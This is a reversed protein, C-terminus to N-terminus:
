PPQEFAREPEIKIKTAEMSSYLKKALAQLDTEEAIDVGFWELIWSQVQQAKSLESSSARDSPVAKELAQRLKGIILAADGGDKFARLLEERIAEFELGEATAHGLLRGEAKQQQFNPGLQWRAAAAAGEARRLAGLERRAADAAREQRRALQLAERDKDNQRARSLMARLADTTKWEWLDPDAVFNAAREGAPTWAAQRRQRNLRAASKALEGPSKDEDFLDVLGTLESLADKTDTDRLRRMLKIVTELEKAVSMEMASPM